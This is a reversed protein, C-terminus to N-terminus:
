ALTTGVIRELAKDRDRRNNVDTAARLVARAYSVVDESFASGELSNELRVAADVEEGFNVLAVRLSKRKETELPFSDSRGALVLFMSYFDSKKRWRTRRLDSLVGAIEQTTRSFVERVRIADEFGSEYIQYFYDLRTKKDQVGHLYAVVLESIFEVDIMRRFEEATFIGSEAWFPNQDSEAEITKIFPGWYTAHRLEQANLAVVNRNLRQFIERLEPESLDPLTRVVFKYGFFKKKDDPSLDEFSANPWLPADEENLRFAGEIFELCSRVRQQGDVIVYRQKGYEDVLDQMYLEPIPLGRLITDMLYSKQTDTWVPNRQFPPKMDLSGDQHRDNFWAINRHATELYNITATTAM